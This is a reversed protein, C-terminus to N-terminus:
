EIQNVPEYKEQHKPDNTPTGLQYSRPLSDVQLAEIETDIGDTYDAM